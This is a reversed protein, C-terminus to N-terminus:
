VWLSDLPLSFIFGSTLNLSFVWHANLRLSPAFSTLPLYFRKVSLSLLQPRYETSLLMEATGCGRREEVGEARLAATPPPSRPAAIAFIRTDYSYESASSLLMLSPNNRMAQPMRLRKMRPKQQSLGVSWLRWLLGALQVTLGYM